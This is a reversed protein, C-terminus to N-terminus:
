GESFWREIEELVGELARFILKNEFRLVRIGLGSLYADRDFDAASGASTFHLAGDLEIVLRESPCYFDVIFPGLSSQRRFKRGALQSNKLVRWLTAEASTATNRLARRVAKLEPENHLQPRPM